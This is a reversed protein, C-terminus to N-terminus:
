PSAPNQCFPPLLGSFPHIFQFAMGKKAASWWFWRFLTKCPPLCSSQSQLFMATEQEHSKKLLPLHQLGFPSNTSERPENRRHQLGKARLATFPLSNKWIPPLTLQPHEGLHQSGLVAREPHPHHDCVQRYWLSRPARSVCLFEPPSSVQCLLIHKNGM